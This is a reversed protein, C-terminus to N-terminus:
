EPTGADVWAQILDQEAKTLCAPNATDLAPDGTCKAGFPMIGAKILVITCAAKTMGACEDFLTAPKDASAFSEGINHGGSSGGTHCPTCRSAYIPKVTAYTVAASTDSTADSVVDASTSGGDDCGPAVLSLAAAFSLLVLLRPRSM